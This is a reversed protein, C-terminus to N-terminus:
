CQRQNGTVSCFQIGTAGCTVVVSSIPVPSLMAGGGEETRKFIICLMGGLRANGGEIDGSGSLLSSREMGNRRHFMAIPRTRVGHCGPVRLVRLDVGSSLYRTWSSVLPGSLWPVSQLQGPTEGNAQKGKVLVAIREPRM